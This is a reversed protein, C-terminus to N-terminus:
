AVYTIDGQPEGVTELPICDYTGIESAPAASRYRYAISLDLGSREEWAASIVADIQRVPSCRNFTFGLEHAHRIGLPTSCWFRFRHAREHSGEGLWQVSYDALVAALTADEAGDTGYRSYPTGDLESSILTVTAYPETPAPASRNGVRVLPRELGSGRAVYTRLALEVTRLTPEFNM